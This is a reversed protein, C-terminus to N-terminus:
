VFKVASDETIKDESKYCTRGALEIQRYAVKLLEERIMKPGIEMDDPIARPIPQIDVIEFSSKILKM